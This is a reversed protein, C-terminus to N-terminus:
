CASRSHPLLLLHSVLVAAHALSGIEGALRAQGLVRGPMWGGRVKPPEPEGQQRRPAAGDLSARSAQSLQVERLHGCSTLDLHALAANGLRLEQPPSPLLYPCPVSPASNCLSCAKAFAQRSLWPKGWAGGAARVMLRSCGAAKFRTLAPSALVVQRLLGCGSVSRAPSPSHAPSLFANALLMQLCCWM